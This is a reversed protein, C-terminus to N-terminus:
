LALDDAFAVVCRLLPDYRHLRDLYLRTLEISSIQRARLLTGLRRISAFAADEDAAPRTADVAPPALVSTVDYSRSDPQATPSAFPTFTTPPLIM